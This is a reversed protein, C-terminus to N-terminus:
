TVMDGGVNRRVYTCFIYTYGLRFNQTDAGITERKVITVFRATNLQSIRWSWGGAFWGLSMYTHIYTSCSIVTHLESMDLRIYDSTNSERHFPSPQHRVTLFPLRRSAAAGVTATAPLGSAAILGVVVAVGFNDTGRPGRSWNTDHWWNTLFGLPLRATNPLVIVRARNVCSRSCKYAEVIEVQGWLLSCVAM